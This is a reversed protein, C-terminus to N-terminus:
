EQLKIFDILEMWIFNEKGNLGLGEGVRCGWGGGEDGLKDGEKFIGDM